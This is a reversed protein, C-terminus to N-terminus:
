LLSLHKTMMLYLLLIGHVRLLPSNSKSCPEIFETLSFFGYSKMGDFWLKVEGLTGAVIEPEIRLEPYGASLREVFTLLTGYKKQSYEDYIQVFYM